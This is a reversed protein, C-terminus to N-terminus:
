YPRSGVCSVMVAPSTGQQKHPPRPSPRRRSDLHRDIFFIENVGGVRMQISRSNVYGPQSMASRGRAGRRTAAAVPGTSAATDAATRPRKAKRPSSTATPQAPADTARDHRSSAKRKRSSASPPLPTDPEAPPPETALRASSRTIRSSM